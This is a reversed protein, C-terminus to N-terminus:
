GALQKLAKILTPAEISQVRAKLSTADDNRHVLCSEQLIIPGADVEETVFHVTCGTENSKADLVAQHVNLDMLGSFAPLLSPHINIVKNRWTNVFAPSLIRMYGLLVILDVQYSQCLGTIKLDYAERSLGAPDVFQADLGLNRARELILADPKNSIVLVIEAALECANIAEILPLMVSGRQSGLIALRM